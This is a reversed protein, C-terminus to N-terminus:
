GTKNWGIYTWNFRKALANNFYEIFSLIKAKLDDISFFSMRKLLRRTLISFWMEIQNLWSSHKPTYVFRIRHAPDSLFAERSKISKLIGNKGKKGLDIELNCEKSVFKVLSESIHTNLRDVIFIWEGYKDTQEITNKIHNAFDTETRTKQITPSLIKGSSVDLNGILCLTGHRIYEFERFALKGQKMPLDPFRPELAQIGTKEDVSM